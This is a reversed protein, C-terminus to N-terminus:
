LNKVRNLKKNDEEILRTLRKSLSMGLSELLKRYDEQLKKPLTITVKQYTTNM